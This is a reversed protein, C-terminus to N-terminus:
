TGRGADEEALSVPVTTTEVRAIELVYKGALVDKTVQDLITVVLAHHTFDPDVRERVVGVIQELRREIEPSLSFTKRIRTPPRKAKRDRAEVREQRAKLPDVPLAPM